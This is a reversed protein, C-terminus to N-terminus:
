TIKNVEANYVAEFVPQIWQLLWTLEASDNSKTIDSLRLTRNSLISELTSLTCYHYIIEAAKLSNM